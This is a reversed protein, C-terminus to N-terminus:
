RAAKEGLRKAATMLATRGGDQSVTAELANALPTRFVHEDQMRTSAHPLWVSLALTLMSRFAFFGGISTSTMETAISTSTSSTSSVM